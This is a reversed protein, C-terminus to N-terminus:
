FQIILILMNKLIYLIHTMVMSPDPPFKFWIWPWLTIESKFVHPMCPATGLKIYITVWESVGECTQFGSGDLVGVSKHDKILTILLCVKLFLRHCLCLCKSFVLYLCLCLCCKSLVMLFCSTVKLFNSWLSSSVRGSRGIFLCHCLCQSFVRFCGLSMHGDLLQDYKHCNLVVIRVNETVRWNIIIVLSLM